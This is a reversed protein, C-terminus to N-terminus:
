EDGIEIDGQIVYAQLKQSLPDAEQETNALANILTDYEEKILPHQINLKYIVNGEATGDYDQVRVFSKLECKEGDVFHESIENVIDTLKGQPTLHVSLAAYETGKNKSTRIRLLQISWAECNNMTEFVLQINQLSM